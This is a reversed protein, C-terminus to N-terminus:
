SGDLAPLVTQLPHVDMEADALHAYLFLCYRYYKGLPRAERPTQGFNGMSRWAM